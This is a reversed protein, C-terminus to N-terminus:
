LLYFLYVKRLLILSYYILLSLIIIVVVSLIGALSKLGAGIDKGINKSRVTSATVLGYVEKIEKGPINETTVIIM